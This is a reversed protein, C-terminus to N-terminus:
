LRVQQVEGGLEAEWTRAFEVVHGIPEGAHYTTTIFRSPNSGDGVVLEDILDDIRSAGEGVIAILSVGDRLCAEVFPELAQEDSLPLELVLKPAYPM